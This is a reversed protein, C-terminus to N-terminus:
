TAMELGTSTHISRITFYVKKFFPFLLLAPVVAASVALALIVPTSLTRPLWVIALVYGYFATLSMLVLTVLISKRKDPVSNKIFSKQLTFFDDQTLRYHIM